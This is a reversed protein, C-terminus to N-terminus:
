RKKIDHMNSNLNKLDSIWLNLLSLERKDIIKKKCLLTYCKIMNFYINHVGKKLKLNDLNKAIDFNKLYGPIEDIFDKMLDHKNRKHTVTSNSFLISWNNEWCIRQAVFSRWIDSMRFSTYAPLYLLPFAEEHWVTNQSNFPCWTKKGLAVDQANNFTLPNNNTLRYIADVDPDNNALRQNIPCITVKKYKLKYKKENIKSLPFGRPWIKKKSFFNYANVWGGNSIYFTKKKIKKLLFFNNEPENDDDIDYILNAKNKMALLFGINKRSYSNIPCKSSYSFNLKNQDKLSFFSSNKLRFNKPSKKDGVILVNVSNKKSKNAIIKLSKTPKAVSTIVLYKKM